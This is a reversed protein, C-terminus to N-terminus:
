KKQNKHILYYTDIQSWMRNVYPNHYYSMNEKVIFDDIFLSEFNGIMLVRENSQTNIFGNFEVSNDINVFNAKVSNSKMYYNILPTSVITSINNQILDNKLQSIASPNKHDWVLTRTIQILLFVFLFVTTNLVVSHKTIVYKFGVSLIIFLVILAPLIHRSKYIINQSFFVWLLYILICSMIIKLSKEFKWNNIITVFGFILLTAILFSFIVTVWSRGIWYGGMGDAWISEVLHFFRISLNKETFISGGYDMFHGQTHNLASLWLNDFGTIWILPILWLFIGLLFLSLLNLRNKNKILESIFPFLIIPLYSLRIGALVGSLFYGCYLSSMKKSRFILQYLIATVIALGMIDPMYRNSMLWVLPNFFIIFIMFLGVLSAADNNDLKLMFYILYYVSVGGIISFTISMSGTLLYIIKAIFCFVPYGPFHPQLKTIDYDYLSLAFRLSDVDEIYYISTLIRSSFCLIFLILLYLHNKKLM